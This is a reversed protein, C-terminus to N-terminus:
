DNKGLIFGNIASCFTNAFSEVGYNGMILKHSYDRFKEALEPNTILRLMADYLEDVSAKEVVYGNHGDKILDRSAGAGKSAIVPCKCAMAENLVIGWTEKLSPLVFFDAISYYLPLVDNPIQGLFHVEEINQQKCMAVLQDKQPGDGVLVLCIDTYENRLKEYAQILYRIGKIEILRGVYLIIKKGALGLDKKRDEINIRYKESESSFFNTDISNPLVFIKEDKAGLTILYEKALTSLAFCANSTKVMSTTMPKTITKLVSSRHVTEASFIIAPKRTIKSYTFGFQTASTDWGGIVFVDFDNRVLELPFTPNFTYTASGLSLDIAPLIKYNLNDEIKLNWSRRKGLSTAFYVFIELEAQQNLASLRPLMYPSPMNIILCIRPKREYKM